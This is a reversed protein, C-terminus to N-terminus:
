LATAQPDESIPDRQKKLRRKKETKPQRQVVPGKPKKDKSKEKPDQAAKRKASIDAQVEKGKSAVITPDSSAAEVPGSSTTTSASKKKKKSHTITFPNLNSTDHAL